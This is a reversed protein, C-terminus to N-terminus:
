AKGDTVGSELIYLVAQATAEEPTFINSMEGAIFPVHGEDDFLKIVYTKPYTESTEKCYNAPYSTLEYCLGQAEIWALMQDLRPCFIWEGADIYDNVRGWHEVDSHEIYGISDSEDGSFSAYYLADGLQPKWPFGSDRLKKATELSLM